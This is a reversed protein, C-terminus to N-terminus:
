QKPYMTLDPPLKLRSSHLFINVSYPALRAQFSIRYKEILLLSFFGLHPYYGCRERQFNKGSLITKNQITLFYSFNIKSSMYHWNQLKQYKYGKPVQVSSVVYHPHFHGGYFVSQMLNQLQLINNNNLQSFTIMIKIIIFFFIKSDRQLVLVYKKFVSYLIILM